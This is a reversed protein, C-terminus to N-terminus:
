RLGDAARTRLVNAIAEIVSVDAVLELKEKIESASKGEGLLSLFDDELRQYEADDTAIQSGLIGELDEPDAGGTPGLVTEPVLTVSDTPVKPKRRGAWRSLGLKDDRFWIAWRVPDYDEGFIRLYAAKYRAEVTALPDGSQEAIARLSKEEAGNYAGGCWGERLDWVRLYDDLLDNRRRTEKVGHNKKQKAVIRKLQEVIARQPADRDFFVVGDPAKELEPFGLRTLQEIVDAEDGGGALIKGVAQRVPQPLEVLMDILYGYLLPQAAGKGDVSALRLDEASLAPDPYIQQRWNCTLLDMKRRAQEIDRWEPRLREPDDPPTKLYLRAKKWSRLYEPHRRLFEWGYSPPLKRIEPTYRPTPDM